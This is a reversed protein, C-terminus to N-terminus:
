EELSEDTPMASLTRCKKLSRRPEEGIDLNHKREEQSSPNLRMTLRRLRQFVPVAKPGEAQELIQIKEMHFTKVSPQSAGTQETQACSKILASDHSASLAAVRCASPDTAGPPDLMRM